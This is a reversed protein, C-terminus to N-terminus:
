NIREFTITGDGTVNLESGDPLEADDPINDEADITIILTTEDLQSINGIGIISEDTTDNGVPSFSLGTTTLQNGELSWMGSSEADPISTIQEDIIQGLVSTTITIDYTGNTMLTNDESFIINYDFNSGEVDSQANVPLGEFIFSNTLDATFDVMSWEGILLNTENSEDSNNNDDNACSLAIFSLIVLAITSTFKKM